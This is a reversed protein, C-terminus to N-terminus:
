VNTATQRRKDGMDGMDGNDSKTATQRESRCFRCPTVGAVHATCPRCDAAFFFSRPKAGLHGSDLPLDASREARALAHIASYRRTDRAILYHNMNLTLSPAHVVGFYAFQPCIPLEWLNCSECKLYM